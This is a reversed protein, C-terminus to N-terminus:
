NGRACTLISARFGNKLQRICHVRGEKEHCLRTDAHSLKEHIFTRNDSTDSYQYNIGSCKMGSIISHQREWDQLFFLQFNQLWQVPQHELLSGCSSLVSTDIGLRTSLGRESFYLKLPIASSTTMAIAM